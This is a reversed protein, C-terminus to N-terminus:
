SSKEDNGAGAEPDDSAGCFILVEAHIFEGEARYFYFIIVGSHDATVLLFAEVSGDGYFLMFLADAM